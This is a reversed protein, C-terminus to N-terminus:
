SGGLLYEYEARRGDAVLSNLAWGHARPVVDFVALAVDVGRFM